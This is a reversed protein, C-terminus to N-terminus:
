NLLIFHCHKNKQIYNNIFILFIKTNIENIIKTLIMSYKKMFFFKKSIYFNEFKIFLIEINRTLLLSLNYVTM